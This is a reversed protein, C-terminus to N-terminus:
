SIDTLCVKRILFEPSSGSIKDHKSYQVNNAHLVGLRKVLGQGERLNGAEQLRKWREFAHKKLANDPL